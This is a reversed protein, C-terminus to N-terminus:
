EEGNPTKFNFVPPKYDKPLYEPPINVMNGDRMAVYRPSMLEIGAENFVDQVNAHLDSYIRAQKNPMKTFANLDYSVYFDNLATQLVYPAPTKELLETRTAAEVLLEHVKRWPIDYGVTIVTHIILGKEAADSSYNVTHNNMVSSNPISIIENRITRLRTVLLNKEIIDGTVEGIKVRDGIKFARMYTLVLGAVVNGLAGTSGFTFLVGVFVSVGKFIPSDSGPLYPYIVIFMFALVLVRVIQYTPNAWDPYFGPIKLQGREIETKVFRFFTIVYRFIIVLVIITILNPVYNWVAKGIKRLPSLIYGLLASSIDRTFPFISFLITLAIYVAIIVVLWRVLNLIAGFVALQREPTLLQYNRIKIGGVALRKSTAIKMRLWFFFKNISYILLGLILVVLLALLAEKTLTQWSTENRYTTVAVAISNKIQKALQQKDMKMWLADMDSIAVILNDKYVVDVTQENATVLLSDPTYAYDDALKAVRETVASAREWATFSGQRLYLSFITDRFPTVPYGKVFRRLSDVQLKQKIRRLSDEQKLSNLQNLLEAKKKNDVNSLRAVQQELEARKLSDALREAALQQMQKLQTNVEASHTTDTVSQRSTDQAQATLLCLFICIFLHSIAKIMCPCTPKSSLIVNALGTPNQM